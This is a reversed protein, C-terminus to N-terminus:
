PARLGCLFARLPTLIDSDLDFCKARTGPGLRPDDPSLASLLAAIRAKDLKRVSAGAARMCDLFSDVCLIQPSRSSDDRLARWVLTELEGQDDDGTGPVVHFGVRAGDPHALWGGNSPFALDTIRQLRDALSRRTAAASTDADLVIGIAKADRLRKPTFWAEIQDLLNPKGQFEKIFCQTAAGGERQGIGLHELMEALFTLDSHGEVLLFRNCQHEVPKM